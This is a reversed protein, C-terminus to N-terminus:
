QGQDLQPSHHHIGAESRLGRLRPWASAPIREPGGPTSHACRPGGFRDELMWVRQQLQYIRDAVIKQELRNALLELDCQKAVRADYAAVSGIISIFGIVIALATKVKASM